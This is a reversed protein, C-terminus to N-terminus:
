GQDFIFGLNIATKVVDEKSKTLDHSSTAQTYDVGVFGVLDGNSTYFPCRIIAMANRTEFLWYNASNPDANINNLVVCKHEMFEINQHQILSSPL